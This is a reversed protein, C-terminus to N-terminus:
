VAESFESSLVPVFILYLIAVNRICIRNLWVIWRQKSYTSQNRRVQISNTLVSAGLSVSALILGSVMSSPCDTVRVQEAMPCGLGMKVQNSVCFLWVNESASHFIEDISTECLPSYWQSAWLLCPVSLDFGIVILTVHSHERNWKTHKHNETTMGETTSSYKKSIKSHYEYFFYNFFESHDNKM